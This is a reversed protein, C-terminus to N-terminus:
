LELADIGDEIELQRNIKRDLEEQSLGVETLLSGIQEIYKARRKVPDLEDPTLETM